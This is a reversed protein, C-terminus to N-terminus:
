TPAPVSPKVAMSTSTSLRNDNIYKVGYIIGFISIYAVIFLVILMLTSTLINLVIDEKNSFIKNIQDLLSDDGVAENLEEDFKKELKKNMNLINDCRRNKSKRRNKRLKRIKLEKM